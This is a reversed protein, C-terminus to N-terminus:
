FIGFNKRLFSQPAASTRTYQTRDRSPSQTSGYYASEMARQPSLPRYYGYSPHIGESVM